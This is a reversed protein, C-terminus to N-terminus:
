RAKRTKPEQGADPVPEPEPEPVPSANQVEDPQDHRLRKAWDKVPTANVTEGEDNVEVILIGDVYRREALQLAQEETVEARGKTFVVGSLEDYLAPYRPSRAQLTM